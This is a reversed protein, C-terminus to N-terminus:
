LAPTASACSYALCPLSRITEGSSVQPTSVSCLSLSDSSLSYLLPKCSPCFTLSKKIVCPTIYYTRFLFREIPRYPTQKQTSKLAVVFRRKDARQAHHGSNQMLKAAHLYEARHTRAGLQRLLKGCRKPPRGSTKAHSQLSRTSRELKQM